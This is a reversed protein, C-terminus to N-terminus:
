SKKVTIFDFIAYLPFDLNKEIIKTEFLEPIQNEKNYQIWDNVAELNVPDDKFKEQMVAFLDFFSMDENVPILKLEHIHQLFDHKGVAASVQIFEIEKKM